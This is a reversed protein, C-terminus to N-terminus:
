RDISKRSFAARNYPSFMMLLFIWCGGFELLEGKKGGNVLECLGALILYMIVHFWKPLPLAFRDVFRQVKEFKRYLTPLILFYFGIIIGLITGFVLKNIKTDGFKLNHFNTEMQTNYTMFFEPSKFGILRQGWSIEEGVGFLFLLGMYILGVRFARGRFPSLIKSRYFCLFSGTLLALVTLWEIFGDERAFSGEYAKLDVHSTIIGIIVLGFVICFFFKESAKIDKLM